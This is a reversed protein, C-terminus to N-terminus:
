ELTGVLFFLCLSFFASVPMTVVWSVLIRKVMAGNIKDAGDVLAM